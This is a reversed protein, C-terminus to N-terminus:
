ACSLVPAAFGFMVILTAIVSLFFYIFFTNVGMKAACDKFWLFGLVGGAVLFGIALPIWAEMCGLMFFSTGLGALMSSWGIALWHCRTPPCNRKKGQIMWMVVAVMFLALVVATVVLVTQIGAAAELAGPVTDAVICVLLTGITLAALFAVLYPMIKCWVSVTPVEAAPINVGTTANGKCTGPGSTNVTINATYSNTKRTFKHTAKSTTTTQPASNDGWNWVFKEPAPGTFTVGAEVEWTNGDLAKSSQVFVGTIDPCTEVVETKPPISINTEGSSACDGPGSIKLLITKESASGQPKLYSHTAFPETTTELSSGDGWNWEYKDPSTGSVSAEVRVTATTDDQSTIQASVGSLVPCEPKVIIIAGVEATAKAGTACKGPGNAAFAIKYTKASEERQYTHSAEPTRTTEAPSGDGWQWVFETPTGQTFSAKAVFTVTTNTQGSVAVKLSELEPCVPALVQAPEITVATTASSGCGGPGETTLTITFVTAKGDPKTYSHTAEPVTTETEASGDGWNWLFRGPPTGSVSATAKVIQISDTAEIKEASLSTIEGCESFIRLPDGSLPYVKDGEKPEVVFTWGQNFSGEFPLTEDLGKDTHAPNEWHDKIFVSGGETMDFGDAPSLCIGFVKKTTHVGNAFSYFYGGRIKFFRDPDGEGKKTNEIEAGILKAPDPFDNESPSDSATFIVGQSAFGARFITRSKVASREHFGTPANLPLKM